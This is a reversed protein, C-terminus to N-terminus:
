QLEQVKVNLQEQFKASEKKKDGELTSLQRQLRQNQESKVSLQNKTRRLLEDKEEVQKDKERLKKENIKLQEDKM